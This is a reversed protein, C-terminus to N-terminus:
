LGSILQIYINILYKEKYVTVSIQRTRSSAQVGPDTKCCWNDDRVKTEDSALLQSTSLLSDFIHKQTSKPLQDIQDQISTTTTTITAISFVIANFCLFIEILIM